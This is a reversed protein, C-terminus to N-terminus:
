LWCNAKSTSRSMQEPQLAQTDSCPEGDRAPRFSSPLLNDSFVWCSGDPGVAETVISGGEAKIDACGVPQPTLTCERERDVAEARIVLCQSIVCEPYPSDCGLAIGGDTTGGDTERSPTGESKSCGALLLM